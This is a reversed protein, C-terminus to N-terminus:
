TEASLLDASGKKEGGENEFCPPDKGAYAPVTGKRKKKKIQSKLCGGKKRGGVGMILAVRKSSRLLPCQSKGRVRGPSNRASSNERTVEKKKEGGQRNRGPRCREAEKKKRIHQFTAFNV